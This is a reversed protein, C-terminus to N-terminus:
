GAYRANYPTGIGVRAARWAARANRGRVMPLADDKDLSRFKFLEAGLGECM